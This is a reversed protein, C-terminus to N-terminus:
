EKLFEEYRDSYKSRRVGRKLVTDGTYLCSPSCRCCYWHRKPCDVIKHIHKQKVRDLYHYGEDDFSDSLVILSNDNITLKGYSQYIKRLDKIDDDSWSSADQLKSIHWHLNEQVKKAFDIYLQQENFLNFPVFKWIPKGQYRKVLLQGSNIYGGRYDSNLDDFDIERVPGEDNRYRILTPTIQARNLINIVFPIGFRKKKDYISQLNAYYFPLFVKTQITLYPQIYKLGNIHDEDFHSIFLLDITEKPGDEPIFEQLAYKNVLAGNNSDGCDYVATLVKNGDVYLREIFFAGHGVPLFKRKHLIEMM